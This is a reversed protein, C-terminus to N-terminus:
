EEREKSQQYDMWDDYTSELEQDIIQAGAIGDPDANYAEFLKREEKTIKM